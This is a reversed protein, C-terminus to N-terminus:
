EDHELDNLGDVLLLVEEATEQPYLQSVIHVAFRRLRPSVDNESPGELEDGDGVIRGATAAFQQHLRVDTLQHQLEQYQAAKEIADAVDLGGRQFDASLDSMAQKIQAIQEIISPM